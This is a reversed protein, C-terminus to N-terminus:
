VQEKEADNPNKQTNDISTDNWNKLEEESDELTTSLHQTKYQHRTSFVLFVFYNLVGLVALMWYFYDLKGNNLNNKLWSGNTVKHVISVLLSSIFFGMSLTSLFLGTSMSKMGEPAERIFFELQGVYAFAEGAGVIFFQPVLWFASISYNHHIANERRQKEVIAAAVMGVISLILGIGVRQLSTLGQRNGTIKRAIPVTVRENISTFLLISIFLFVSFSGAPIGFKGVNRNMFTAQEISFTNMQSYVTWFLICTSWIPILKLVMKVEEVQSVTSVIWSNIRNENAVAYDDLIAAKDLCRLMKTHPVKANHYENLFGPDSPHSFKRKRWALILVRWIITLPSGEPKKFRYLSTGGLLVAVALIMTGASIGYGWGRGVNDQIYVLVTVAFLSGLSICFYFRNFFYIMAKNEKPNSSDFQDSGFGSVSSKIGGCGLSITYLAAYLLALQQGSAEICHGKSRSDCVPPKMSPISTALTLLTVGVAAICGFTAITAYRGLKADALFGGLLALLNLTGMFNTVINASDSSPLHLDGVLYTVLNMSIGMVCIRESLETGLILGAGLWGGTRSKDVPNGRFDVLGGDTSGDKEAHNHVLVM